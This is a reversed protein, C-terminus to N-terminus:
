GERELKYFGGNYNIFYYQSNAELNPITPEATISNKAHGIPHGVVSWSQGSNNSKYVQAIGNESDIPVGWVVLEGDDLLELDIWEVIEGNQDIPPEQSQWTQGADSSVLVEGRRIAFFLSPYLVNGSVVDFVGKDALINEWTYGMDTSIWLGSEFSPVIFTSIGNFAPESAIVEHTTEPNNDLDIIEWSHGRNTSRQLQSGALFGTKPSDEIAILTTSNGNVFGGFPITDNLAQFENADTYESRLYIRGLEDVFSVFASTSSTYYAYFSSGDQTQFLNRRSHTNYSIYIDEEKREIALGVGVGSADQGNGEGSFEQWVNTDNDNDSNNEDTIDSSPTTDSSGGGGCAAVLFLLLTVYRYEM